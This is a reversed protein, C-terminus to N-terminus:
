EISETIRAKLTSAPLAELWVKFKAPEVQAMELAASYMSAFRQEPDQIHEAWALMAAPDRYPNRHIMDHLVRDHAPRHERTNIYDLMSTPDESLWQDLADYLMADLNTIEKHRSIADVIAHREPEDAVLQRGVGPIAKLAITDHQPDALYTLVENPAASKSHNALLDASVNEYLFHAQSDKLIELTALSGFLDPGQSFHLAIEESLQRSGFPRLDMTALVHLASRENEGLMRLLSAIFADTSGSGALEKQWNAEYIPKSAASAKSSIPVQPQPPPLENWAARFRDKATTTESASPPGGADPILGTPAFPKPAPEADSTTRGTLLLFAMLAGLSLILLTTYTKNMITSLAWYRWKAM